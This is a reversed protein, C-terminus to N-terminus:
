NLLLFIKNLYNFICVKAREKLCYSKCFLIILRGNESKNLIKNITQNLLKLYLFKKSAELIKSTPIKKIQIVINKLKEVSQISNFNNQLLYSKETKYKNIANLKFFYFINLIFLYIFFNM